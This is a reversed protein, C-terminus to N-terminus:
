LGRENRQSKNVADGSMTNVLQLFILGEEQEYKKIAWLKGQRGARTVNTNVM